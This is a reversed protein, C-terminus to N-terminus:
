WMKKKEEEELSHCTRGLRSPGCARKKGWSDWHCASPRWPDSHTTWATRRADICPGRHRTCVTCCGSGGRSPTQDWGTDWSRSARSGGWHTWAATYCGEPQPCISGKISFCLDFRIDYVWAFWLLCVWFLGYVHFYLSVFWILADLSPPMCRLWEACERLSCLTACPSRKVNQHRSARNLVNKISRWYATFVDHCPWYSLHQSQPLLKLAYRFGTVLAPSTPFAPSTM